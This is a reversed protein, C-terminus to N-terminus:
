QEGGKVEMIVKEKTRTGDFWCLNKEAEALTSFSNTCSAGASSNVWADVWWWFFIFHRQQIIFEARGDPMTRQIIRAKM